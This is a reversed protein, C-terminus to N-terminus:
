KDLRSYPTPTATSYITWNARSSVMSSDIWLLVGAADVKVLIDDDSSIEPVPLDTLTYPKNYAELVQAKM